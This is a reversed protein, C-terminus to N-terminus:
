LWALVWHLIAPLLGIYGGAMHLRLFRRGMKKRFIGVLEVVAVVAFAALGYWYWAVPPGGYRMLFQLM